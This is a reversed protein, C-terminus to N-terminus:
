RYRTSQRGALRDSSVEKSKVREAMRDRRSVGPSGAIYFRLREDTAKSIGIRTTTVIPHRLLRKPRCLRISSRTDLLDTGDDDGTIELRRCLKGPGDCGDVGDLGRILVAEGIGEDGTVVNLCWYMGYIRYVYAAGPRNFMVGNRGTRGRYAHSAPDGPPYAEIEVIRTDLTEGSPLRRIIRWGLLKRAAEVAGRELLRVADHRNLSLPRRAPMERVM